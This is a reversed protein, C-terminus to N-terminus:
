ADEGKMGLLDNAQKLWSYVTRKSVGHRQAIEEQTMEFQHWEVFVQRIKPPLRDLAIRMAAKLDIGVAREPIDDLPDWEDQPEVRELSGDIRADRKRFLDIARRRAFSAFFNEALKSTGARIAKLLQLNIEQVQEEREDRSQGFAQFLLLPAALKAAAEFALKMLAEDGDRHGRASVRVLAEVSVKRDGRLIERLASTRAPPALALISAEEAAVKELHARNAPNAAVRKPEADRGELDDPGIEGKQPDGAM